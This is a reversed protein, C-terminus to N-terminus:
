TLVTFEARRCAGRDRSDGSFVELRSKLLFLIILELLEGPPSGRLYSSYALM